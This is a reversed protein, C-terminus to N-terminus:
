HKANQEHCKSCLAAWPRAAYQLLIRGCRWCRPATDVTRSLQQPQPQQTM